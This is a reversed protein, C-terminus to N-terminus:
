EAGLERLLEYPFIGTAHADPGFTFNIAYGGVLRAATVTYVAADVLRLPERAGPERCGACPCALRLTAASLTDERGDDWAVRVLQGDVDIREPSPATM